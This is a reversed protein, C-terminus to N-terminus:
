EEMIFKVYHIIAERLFQSDSIKYDLESRKSNIKEMAQDMAEGLKKTCRFSKRIQDM